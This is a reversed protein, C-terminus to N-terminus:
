RGGRLRLNDRADVSGTFRPPVYTTAGYEVVLCPGSVRAGAGLSERRWVPASVVRTGIDLAV